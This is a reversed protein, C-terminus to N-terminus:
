YSCCVGMTTTPPSSTQPRRRPCTARPTSRCPSASPASAGSSSPASTIPRRRRVPAGPRRLGLPRHGARRRARHARLVGPRLRDRSGAPRLRLVRRQAGPLLRRPARVPLAFGCKACGRAERRFGANRETATTRNGCNPCIFLHAMSSGCALLTTRRRLFARAARPGPARLRAATACRGARRASCSAGSSLYPEYVDEITDAEEGVAVALTSLGVPGGAFSTCVASCCSATSATWARTTSRWCSSRPTPPARRRDDGDGRVQAFDRVRKLLRNAVRPTGRAREAIARAGAAEIAAGLIRASRLVIRRPRRPRLARPPAPHRLPRAAADDAPRDAHDRRRAHVAALDLTVVQAGAGQGVTIPLRGDEMAPYFTEELARPLRHLEDVFFVSRPELATLFRRSTARASSRRAPPRCSPSASSPPSSRRSRRRASARAPRRAPRPRARRRPRRRGRALRRAPEQVRRSASSTRSGARACRATSTRRPARRPRSQPTQSRDSVPAGGQARPRHAGRRHRGRRRRAPPRGGAADYGLELLGDRALTRPDDATAAPSRSRPRSAASRRGCSPSSGSPRASASARRPRCARADGGDVLASLLERPPAAPRARGARGEARRGAGRHAAPLPRAGGRHRLRLAHARGRARCTRTCRSRSASPPCTACRRRPSRSATASAAAADCSSTTPAACRSRAACRARDHARGERARAQLPARNVHCIAVALADSPTTPSRCSPCRSCRRSWAAVQEKDARGTGCVAGKVQQPTYGACPIARQGAALM